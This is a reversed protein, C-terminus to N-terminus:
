KDDRKDPNTISDYKEKLESYEELSRKAQSEKEAVNKKKESIKNELDLLKGEKKQIARGDFLHNILWFFMAMIAGIIVLDKM